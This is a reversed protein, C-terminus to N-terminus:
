CISILIASKWSRFIKLEGGATDMHVEMDPLYTDTPNGTDLLVATSNPSSSTVNSSWVIEGDGSKIQLNGDDGMSLVSDNGSLPKDRNAVWVIPQVSIGYHWIGVYRFRSGNPSFFGLEFREGASIITGGGDVVSLGRPIRNGASIFVSYFHCTLLSLWFFCRFHRSGM